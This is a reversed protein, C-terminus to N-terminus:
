LSEIVGKFSVLTILNTKESIDYNINYRKILYQFVRMKITDDKILNINKFHNEYHKRVLRKNTMDIFNGKYVKDKNLNDLLKMDFKHHANIDFLFIIKGADIILHHNKIKCVDIVRIM